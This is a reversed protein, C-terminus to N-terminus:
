RGRPSAERWAIGLSDLRESARRRLREDHFEFWRRREDPFGGLVDKFRRFAGKGGLAVALLERLRDVEVTAAFEEMERYGERSDAPPVPVYRDPEAGIRERIERDEEGGLVMRVEGTERDLLHEHEFSADGLAFGLEALDVRIPATM